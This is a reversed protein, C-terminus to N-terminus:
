LRVCRRPLLAIHGNQKKVYVGREKGDYIIKARLWRSNSPKLRDESWYWAEAGHELNEFHEASKRPRKALATDLRRNRLMRSYQERAALKDGVSNEQAEVYEAFAADEFIDPFRPTAGFVREYASTKTEANPMANTADQAAWAREEATGKLTGLFGKSVRVFAEATHAHEPAFELVIGRDSAFRSFAESAHAPARDLYIRAPAGFPKLWGRVLANKIDAVTEGRVAEIGVLHQSAEVIILFKTTGVHAVDLQLEENWESPPVRVVGALPPPKRADCEVCQLGRAFKALASLRSGKLFNELKEASPHGFRDHIKRVLEGKKREEEESDLQEDEGADGPEDSAYCIMEAPFECPEDEVGGAVTAAMLFLCLEGETAEEAPWRSLTDAVTNQTGKRYYVKFDFNTLLVVWRAIRGSSASTLFRLSSHDTVVTFKIGELVPSMRSIGWAVAAAEGTRADMKAEGADTARSLIQVPRKIVGVSRPLPYGEADWLKKEKAGCARAGDENLVYEEEEEKSGTGEKGSQGSEGQKELRYLIASLGYKSFDTELVLPSGDPLCLFPRSALIALLERFVREQERGWVTAERIPGTINAYGPIIRRHYSFTAVMRQVAKKDVPAGEGPFNDFAEEFWGDDRQEGKETETDNIDETDAEASWEVPRPWRLYGSIKVEPIRIRDHEVHYGLPHCDRAFLRTKEPNLTFSNQRVAEFYLKLHVFHNRFLKGETGTFAPATFGHNELVHEYESRIAEPDKGEDSYITSDDIYVELAPEGTSGGWKLSQFSGDAAEQAKAAANKHGQPCRLYNFVGWKCAFSCLKQTLVDKIGLQWFFNKLDLESFVKGQACNEVVAEPLPLPYQESKSIKNLRRLDVVLRYGGAPKKVALVNSTFFSSGRAILGQALFNDVERKVVEEEQKGTKFVKAYPTPLKQLESGDVQIKFDYRCERLPRGAHHFV